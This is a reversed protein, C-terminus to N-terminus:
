GHPDRRPGINAFPKHRSPKQKRWRIPTTEIVTSDSDPIHRGGASQSDSM